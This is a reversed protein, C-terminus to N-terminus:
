PLYSLLSQNLQLIASASQLGAQYANNAQSLKVLTTTLDAGAVNTISTELAAQSATDASAASDLRTQVAGNDAVQFIVNDDDKQLSSLDTTSVATSNGNLLNNQLSILHNFLDAGYRSDSVVGRPGSGTNNEGPVDVAISSNASIQSQSVTINGQYTVATVNGNADTTVSFPPQGSATGGFLYSSGDKSNLVDVAQQILQSVQTSDTLMTQTSTTGDVGAALENAKDTITKLQQLASGSLSARNQLTSVNQSFQQVSSNESQLNLAASMAAPDDAPAQIRQGTTAQSQLTYQQAALQNLQNVISDNYSTGAIRM